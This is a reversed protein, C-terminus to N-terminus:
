RRVMNNGDCLHPWDGGGAPGAKKMALERNGVSLNPESPYATEAKESPSSVNSDEKGSKVDASISHSKDTSGTPLVWSSENSNEEFFYIKGEADNSSFWQFVFLSINTKLIRM